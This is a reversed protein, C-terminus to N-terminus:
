GFKRFVGNIKRTYAAMWLAPIGRRSTPVMNRVPQQYVSYEVFSRVTFGSRSKKTVAWSRRLRRTAGVLVPRGDPNKKPKWKKGYPSVGGRKWGQEILRVTQNAVEINARTQLKKPMKDIRKALRILDRKGTLTIGAM